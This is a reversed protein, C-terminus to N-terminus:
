DGVEEKGKLAREFRELWDDMFVRQQQLAEDVNYAAQKMTEAASQITSGARAVDEAGMLTMYDVM